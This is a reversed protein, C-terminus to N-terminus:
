KDWAVGIYELGDDYRWAIIRAQYNGAMAAVFEVMEYNNDWSASANVWNGNPDYIHLDLDATLTDMNPDSHWNTHSDWNVVVRIKEGANAPITVIKPFEGSTTSSLAATQGAALDWYANDAVITGCGEQDHPTNGNAITGYVMHTASAMVMSRLVEPWVRLWNQYSIMLAVEGAVMPAAYSTGQHAHEPRTIWTGYSNFYSQTETSRMGQAVASVEPKHRDGHPSIPDRYSSAYYRSDDGWGATDNDYVGGVTLMNWGLGPSTINGDEGPAGRNGASKCMLRWHEWIVHDFFRDLSSPTLGTDFGFSCSLVDAGQGLAWEAAAILDADNWTKANASLLGIANGMGQFTPESSAIIGAIETPHSDIYGTTDRTTGDIWPAAFDIRGAETVAVRTNAGRIGNSWFGTPVIAPVASNIEPAYDKSLYITVVDARKELASLAACPVEAFVLPAYRCSYVVEGGLGTVAAEVGRAHAEYVPQRERALADRYAQVRQPDAQPAPRNGLFPLDPYRSAVAREVARTDPTTLWLAVRIREGPAALALREKLAPEIKGRAASLAAEASRLGDLEAPSLASGDPNFAAQYTKGTALDLVKALLATRGSLPFAARTTAITRLSDPDLGQTQAVQLLAAQALAPGGLLGRPGALAPWALATGCLLVVLSAAVVVASLRTRRTM